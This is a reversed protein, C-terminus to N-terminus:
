ETETPTQTKKRRFGLFMIIAAFGWFYAAMYPEEFINEFYCHALVGIMGCLLGIARTQLRDSHRKFIARASCILTSLLLVLYAGLGVYGMEVMTKLYYNDLYFYKLGEIIQNQMAIAGGFRGLGFGLWSNSNHLLSLGIAWREARGGTNTAAQFEPTFLYLIRNAVEPVFLLVVVVGLLLFLVMKRDRLLFFLTAAIALGFWAGRSFTVLTAVCIVMVGAWCMLKFWLPKEKHYALAALAPAGLVMLSGMINPSGIISFARTRVGAESQSVWGAPIEVGIIYQYIGHFAILVCMTCFSYYFVNLDHEDEILRVIVFFWLLQQCVARWGSIAIGLHPSVACLLFVSVALFFLLPADLPTARPKIRKGKTILMRWGIYGLCVIMLLEDWVSAISSLSLVDRLLWDIPLFMAFCLILFGRMGLAICARGLLSNRIVASNGISRFFRFVLSNTIMPRIAESIRFILGNIADLARYYRSYVLSSPRLLFRRVIRRTKSHEYLFKFWDVFRKAFSHQYAKQFAFIVKAIFCNLLLKDM